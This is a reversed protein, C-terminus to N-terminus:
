TLDSLEFSIDVSVNRAEVFLGAGLCPISGQHALGASELDAADVLKAM